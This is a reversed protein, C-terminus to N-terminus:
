RQGPLGLRTIQTRLTANAGKADRTVVVLRLSKVKSHQAKSRLGPSERLATRGLTVSVASAASRLTIVLKGHSLSLSKLKAGKLSVGAITLKRHVRRRVVTLGAATQVTLKTLKPGSPSASVTFGMAARGRLLGSVHAGSLTPLNNKAPGSGGSTGGGGSGGSPATCNSVTFAAPATATEDGNQSVLTATATGSPTSCSSSFVGKSGGDLAVRLDSLPIDPLGTFTTSDKSLDVAGTLTLAFPAPFVITISPAALAGPTGTLYAQGSLAKPYLPSTASASGVAQCSGSSPNQCLNGIASVNPSLVSAPLALAVSKPAAQGAGQTIDTTLAVGQDGSDRAATVAFAPTFPLSSCGTVTLPASVTHVTSDSYSSSAVLVTAPTAPCSTPFRLGDFTGNIETVSISTSIGLVPYTDPINTFLIDLGFGAPDSAPRVVVDAPAGLPQYAGSTPDKVSVQLGALDSPNPPKVLTFEAPLSLSLGLLTNETATVTGTGVVCAAIPATASLCAGNDVSANAILGAPLQLALNKVSDQNTPSFKIDTGLNGTSAAAASTPSLTLTPTGIAASASVALEGAMTAALVLMSVFLGLRHRAMSERGEQIQSPM